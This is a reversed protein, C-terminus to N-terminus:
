SAQVGHRLVKRKPGPAPKTGSIRRGVAAACRDAATEREAVREGLCVCLLLLFFLFVSSAVTLDQTERYKTSPSAEHETVRQCLFSIAVPPFTRLPAM